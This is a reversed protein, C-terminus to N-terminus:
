PEKEVSASDMATAFEAPMRAASRRVEDCSSVTWM